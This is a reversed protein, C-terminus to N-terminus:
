EKDGNSDAKKTGALFEFDYDHRASSMVLSYSMDLIVLKVLVCCLLVPTNFLFVHWLTLGSDNM